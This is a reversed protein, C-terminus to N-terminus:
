HRSCIVGHDLSVAVVLRGLLILLQDQLIVELRFHFGDGLLHWLFLFAFIASMLHHLDSLM